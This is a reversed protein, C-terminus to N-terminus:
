YITFLDCVTEQVQQEDSRSVILPARGKGFKLKAFRIICYISYIACLNGFNYEPGREECM